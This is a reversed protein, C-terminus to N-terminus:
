YYIITRPRTKLYTVAVTKLANIRAQSLRYSYRLKQKQMEQNHAMEQVHATWARDERRRQDKYERERQAYEAREAASVQSEAKSVLQKYVADQESGNTQYDSLVNLTEQPNHMAAYSRALNLISDNYAKVRQANAKKNAVLERQYIDEAMILAEQKVDSVEDPISMLLAIAQEYEGCNAYTTAKSFIMDKNSKYYEIIKIKAQDFLSQMKSLPLDLVANKIALEKKTAFGKFPYVVSSYVNSNNRETINVYLNGKVVYVNKMGGEAMQVDEVVINPAIIFNTYGFSTCGSQAALNNLKNVLIDKLQITEESANEPLDIGLVIKGIDSATQAQLPLGVYLAIGVILVYLSKM